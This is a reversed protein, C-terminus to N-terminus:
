DFPYLEPLTSVVIKLGVEPEQSQLWAWITAISRDNHVMADVHEQLAITDVGDHYAEVTVKHRGPKGTNGPLKSM